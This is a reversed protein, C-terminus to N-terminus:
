CWYDPGDGWGCLSDTSCAKPFPPVRVSGRRSSIIASPGSQTLHFVEYAALVIPIICGGVNVVIITESRMRRLTPWLGMLGYVALPHDILLDTRTTKHIPINTLSGIMMAAVLVLATRPKLRLKILSVAMLNAFLPPMLVALIVSLLLAAAVMRTKYSRRLM